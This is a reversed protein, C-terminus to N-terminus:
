WGYYVYDMLPEQPILSVDTEEVDERGMAKAIDQQLKKYEDTQTPSNLYRYMRYFVAQRVVFSYEDPVPSWTDALSVKLPAKSQYVLNVTWITNGPCEYFRIKLTGDNNDKLVCVQEPNAVGSWPHIEKYATLQRTNPPSSTNNLEVMSGSALWGFDTIGPAGGVDSNNQGSVAVFSFSNSTTATIAYGGSWGSSTGNDSFTSNYKAANGTSMVVGSLYVTDGVSFRHTELTTVTVTGSSVTIASASSLAIGVGSSTSGLTFASAGGFIYDQKNPCTTLSPMEVRNFKWDNPSSLLESLADNCLSLAPENSYGGVGALPLLDVHTSAVNIISQLTITSSM